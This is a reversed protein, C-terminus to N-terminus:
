VTRKLIGTCLSTSCGSTFGFQYEDFNDYSKVHESLVNEFLKSISTSIAIARYNYVASLDGTKSKVFPVIVSKMFQVPVYGHKVFLNFLVCLHVRVRSGGYMFAEMAIGDLGVAKGLKQLARAAVIDHVSFTVGGGDNSMETMRQLLSYRADNDSVSNYLQQYHKMWMGAVESDGTCGGVCNAHLTTRDNSTKRIHKWFNRYDKTALSGAHISDEHQQCYRLALKFQSRTRKMMWHEPGSRPKGVAAWALFAERALRHKDSVIDNWGPVTYDQVPHLQRVRLCMICASKICSMFSDSYRDIEAHGSEDLACENYATIPINLNCLMGDLVSEYNVTSLDDAKSWDILVSSGGRDDDINNVPTTLTGTVLNNFVVTLPKHDSSVYDVMVDMDCVLGDIGPSCPVHDIWSSATGVLM